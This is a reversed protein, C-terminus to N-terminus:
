RCAGGPGAGRTVSTPRAAVNAAARLTAAETASLRPGVLVVTLGARIAGHLEVISGVDATPAIAVRDGPSLGAQVYRSARESAQRDLESWTVVGGSEVIAPDGPRAAAHSRVADVFSISAGRGRVM